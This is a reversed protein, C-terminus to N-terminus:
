RNRISIMPATTHEQQQHQVVTQIKVGVSARWAAPKRLRGAPWGTHWLTRGCITRPPAVASSGSEAARYGTARRGPFLKLSGRSRGERPRSMIELTTTERIGDRRQHQRHDARLTSLFDHPRNKSAPILCFACAMFVNARFVEEGDREPRPPKWRSCFRAGLGHPPGTRSLVAM